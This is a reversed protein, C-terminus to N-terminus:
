HPLNFGKAEDESIDLSKPQKMLQPNRELSELEYLTSRLKSTDTGYGAGGPGRGPRYEVRIGKGVGPLEVKVTRGAYGAAMEESTFRTSEEVIEAGAELKRVRITLPGDPTTRPDAGFDLYVEHGHRILYLDHDDLELIGATDLLRLDEGKPPQNTRLGIAWVQQDCVLVQGCVQCRESWREIGTENGTEEFREENKVFVADGELAFSLDTSRRWKMPPGHPSGLGGDRRAWAHEVLETRVTTDAMRARPYLQAATACHEIAEASLGPPPSAKTCAGIAASLSVALCLAERVRM